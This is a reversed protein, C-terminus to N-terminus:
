NDKLICSISCIEWWGESIWGWPVSILFWGSAELDQLQEEGDSHHFPRLKAGDSGGCSTLRALWDSWVAKPGSGSLWNQLCILRSLLSQTLLFCIASSWKVLIFTELSIYSKKLVGVLHKYFYVVSHTASVIGFTETIFAPLLKQKHIFTATSNSQLGCTQAAASMERWEMSPRKWGIQRNVRVM